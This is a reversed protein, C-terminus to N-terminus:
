NENTGRTRLDTIKVARIRNYRYTNYLITPKYFHYIETYIYMIYLYLYQQMTRLEFAKIKKEFKKFVAHEIIRCEAKM